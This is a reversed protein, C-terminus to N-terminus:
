ATFCHILSIITYGSSFILRDRLFDLAKENIEQQEKMENLLRYPDQTFM